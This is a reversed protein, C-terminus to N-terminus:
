ILIFALVALGGGTKSDLFSGTKDLLDLWWSPEKSPYKEALNDALTKKLRLIESKPLDDGKEAIEALKIEKEYKKEFDVEDNFEELREKNKRIIYNIAKGLIRAGMFISLTVAINELVTGAFDKIWNWISGIIDPTQGIGEIPDFSGYADSYGIDTPKPYPGVFTGPGYEQLIEQFAAEAKADEHFEQFTKM